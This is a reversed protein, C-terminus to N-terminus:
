ISRHVGRTMINSSIVICLVGVGRLGGARLWPGYPFDSVNLENTAETWHDCDRHSHGLLGCIYYLNPLREYTFRVWIPQSSGVCTKKGRLLSKSVDLCVRIRMFEGWAMEDEELDVEVVRGIAKGIINGM